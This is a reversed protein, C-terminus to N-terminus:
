TTSRSSRRSARSGRSCSRPRAYCRSGEHLRREARTKRPDGGRRPRAPNGRASGAHRDAVAARLHNRDPLPRAGRPRAGDRLRRGRQRARRLRRPHPPPRDARDRAGSREFSSIESTMQAGFQRDEFGSGALLLAQVRQTRFHRVYEFELDPDRRTDCVMVMRGEGAGAWSAACSRSSTPTAPTTCSSASRPTRRARWRRRTRTRRTTSRRPQRCSPSGCIRAYGALVGRLARSVTAESTGALRAVDGITPPGNRKPLSPRTPPREDATM